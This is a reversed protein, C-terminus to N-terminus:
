KVLIGDTVTTTSEKVGAERAAHYGRLRYYYGSPVLVNMNRSMSTVNSESLDWLKYTCYSGNVKWELAMTLYVNACLRHCQTLGYINVERSSVKSIKISGYALNNGRTRIYSTDEAYDANTEIADLLNSESAAAPSVMTLSLIGAAM